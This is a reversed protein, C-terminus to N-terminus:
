HNRAYEAFLLYGATLGSLILGLLVAVFVKRLKRQRRRPIFRRDLRRANSEPMPSYHLTSFGIALVIHHNQKSMLIHKISEQISERLHTGRLMGKM